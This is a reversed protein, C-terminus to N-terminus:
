EGVAGAAVAEAEVEEAQVAAVTKVVAAVMAAKVGAM